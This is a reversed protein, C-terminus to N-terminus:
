IGYDSTENVYKLIRKVHNDHSVKLDAQYRACVGKEDKSFKLHTPSPTRKHSATEM